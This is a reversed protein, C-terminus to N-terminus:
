TSITRWKGREESLVRHHAETAKGSKQRIVKKLGTCRGAAAATLSRLRVSPGHGAVPKVRSLYVALSSFYTTKGRGRHKLKRLRHKLARAHLPEAGQWELVVSLPGLLRCDGYVKEAALARLQHGFVKITEFLTDGLTLGLLAWDSTDPPPRVARRLMKFWM